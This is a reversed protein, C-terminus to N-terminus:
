CGTACGRHGCVRVTERPLHADACKKDFKVKSAYIAEIVEKLQKLSMNRVNM